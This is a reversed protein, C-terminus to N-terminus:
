ALGLWQAVHAGFGSMNCAVPLLIVGLCNMRRSHFLVPILGIGTGALTVLLGPWGTLALVLATMAALAIASLRRYPVRQVLWIAGRALPGLWLLAVAGAVALAALLAFYDHYTHPVYLGRMLWAGGGRTMHLRPVFFLLFGGAYYVLKSAGQAVLFARADRQATAHGALMGGVGGTVAPVFAAFAGGLVGAGVGRVLLDAPLDVTRTVRQAPIETASLINLILWPVGFLGVFAPMMNQFAADPPLPTRYMLVFGMFGALVFTLLGAGVSSWGAALKRWGGQKRAPQRPWESMLMFGIVAWVIWHLHPRLVDRVHPLCRAALPGAVLVLFLLGGLGGAGTLMVAEYGRGRLLYEQGPLVTFLASEDPAALLVSPITNLLAFGVIMGAAGAVLLAPPVDIGRAALGHLGLAVLGMVSYVHLAPVCALLASVTAGAAAGLIVLLIDKM